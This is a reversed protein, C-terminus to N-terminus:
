KPSIVTIRNNSNVKMNNISITRFEGKVYKEAQDQFHPSLRHGSQGLPNIIQIGDLDGFDIQTRMSPGATVRHEGKSIKSLLNNVTESGGPVSRPGSNFFSGILPIEGLAHKLELTHEKGWEWVLPNSGQKKTLISVTNKFAQLTIDTPSEIEKTSINDWWKSSDNKYVKKLYHYLRATDGLTSFRDEGFEDLFISRMFQIRLESFILAGAQKPNGRKDWNKLIELASLETSSLSSLNPKIREFLSPLIYNASDFTDDLVINKMDEMSYDSKESLLKQLRASRDDAQWYGEIKYPLKGFHKHNATYILGEPPNIKKPRANGTIYDGWEYNGSEGDLIRDSPFNRKPIVGCPFYAINGGIDAYVVNLGPVLLYDSGIEFDKMNRAYNFNYFTKLPNNSKDFMPWKMSISKEPNTMSKTTGSLVPGHNSIKIRIDVDKSFRVKIKEEIIEYKYTKGKYIYEDPNNPNNKELYFDMDDNEFMTLGWAYKDTFGVPSFPVLPLFHGYLKFDPSELYAEFWISPNSFGIHPDNSFLAKKSKSRSPSIVWSNSGQFLPLGIERMLNKLEKPLEALEKLEKTENTIGLAVASIDETIENVRESGLEEELESILPDVHIGEGFGFGMFGVFALIDEREITENSMGLLTFEVPLPKTSGYYNIGKLYQDIYSIADSPSTALNEKLWKVSNRKLGIHRFLIDVKLGKEGVVESIRGSCVRKLIQLQFYRERAQAYGLAFYLDNKNSAFIHPVGYEDTHIEVKESLDLSLLKEGYDPLADRMKIFIFLFTICNIVFIFLITKWILRNKM